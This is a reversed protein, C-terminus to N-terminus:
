NQSPEEIRDIVLVEVPGRGAELRLGLQEQVAAFITPQPDADRVPAGGLNDSLGPITPDVAWTLNVDFRGHLGTKNLVSRNLETQSLTSALAEPSIGHGEMSRTLGRAGTRLIDCFFVMPRSEGPAPRPLPAAPVADPTNPTCDGPKAPPMKVGGKAVRLKFVALQRTERHLKLKFRDQLLAQLMPGTMQDAPTKGNTTAVIDFRDDSTKGVVQDARVGYSFEVLDQVSYYTMVLRGPLVQAYPGGGKKNPKITAADFSPGAAPLNSITLAALAWTRITSASM